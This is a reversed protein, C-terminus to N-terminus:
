REEENGWRTMLADTIERIIVSTRENDIRQGGELETIRKSAIRQEGGSEKDISVEGDTEIHREREGAAVCPTLFQRVPCFALPCFVDIPKM